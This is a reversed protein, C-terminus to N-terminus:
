APLSGKGAVEHVWGEVVSVWDVGAVEDYSVRYRAYSDRGERLLGGRKDFELIVEIGM